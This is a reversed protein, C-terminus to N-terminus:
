RVHHFFLFYYRFLLPKRGAVVQQDLLFLERALTIRQGGLAPPHRPPCALLTVLGVSGLTLRAQEIQELAATLQDDVASEKFGTHGTPGVMGAPAAGETSVLDPMECM